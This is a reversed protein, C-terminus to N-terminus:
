RWQSKSNLFWNRESRIMLWRTRYIRENPFRERTFAFTRWLSSSTTSIPTQWSAHKTEDNTATRHTEQQIRDTAQLRADYCRWCKSIKFLIHQWSWLFVADLTNLCGNKVNTSDRVGNLIQYFAIFGRWGSINVYGLGIKCAIIIYYSAKNILIQQNWAYEHCVCLTKNFKLRKRLFYHSSM